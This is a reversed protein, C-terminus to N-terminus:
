GLLAKIEDVSPVKGQVVLKGDVVLGPTMMLGYKPYEELEKIKELEYEIGLANAAQEASAALRDCRACGPGLVKIKKVDGEARDL